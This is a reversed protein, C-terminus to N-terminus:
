AFLGKYIKKSGRHVMDAIAISLAIVITYDLVRWRDLASEPFYTWYVDILLVHVLYIELSRDGFYSLFQNFRDWHTKNLLATLLLVLSIAVAVYSIRIWYDTLKVTRRFALVYFLLFVGSLWLMEERLPKKEFVWAGAKCGVLFIVSRTLAIEVNHYFGPFIRSVVFCMAAMGAPLMIAFINKNVPIERIRDTEFYLKYVLPYVLYFVLIAGIYWTSRRGALPFSIMTVDLFFNGQQLYIDEWIWYPVVLLVYPILLRTVRRKYFTRLDPKKKYAFYLSIGSLFLFIDVGANGYTLLKQILALGSPWNIKNHFLVVGLCAFGMIESRYKSIYGWNLGDSPRNM